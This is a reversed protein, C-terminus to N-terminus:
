SLAATLATKLEECGKQVESSVDSLKVSNEDFPTKGYDRAAKNLTRVKARIDGSTSVPNDSDIAACKKAADLAGILASEYAHRVSEEKTKENEEDKDKLGPILANQLNESISDKTGGFVDAVFQLFPQAGTHETVLASITMAKQNEGIALKFWKSENPDRNPTTEIDNQPLPFHRDVSSDLRGLIIGGAANGPSTPDNGANHFAFFVAVERSKSRWLKNSIPNNLRAYLPALTLLHDTEKSVSTPVIKAEFIFDPESAPWIRRSWLETLTAPNITGKAVANAWTDEAIKKAKDGESDKFGRYFWGRLIQICPGFNNNTVLINRSATVGDTAEKATESLAKGIYNVGQSVASIALATTIPELTKTQSRVGPKPLEFICGGISVQTQYIMLLDSKPPANDQRYSKGACGILM